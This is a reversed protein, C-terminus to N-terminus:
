PRLLAQKLVYYTPDSMTVPISERSLFTDADKHPKLFVLFAKLNIMNLNKEDTFKDSLPPVGSLKKGIAIAKHKITEYAVSYDKSM